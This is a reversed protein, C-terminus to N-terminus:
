VPNTVEQQHTSLVWNAFSLLQEANASAKMQNALHSIVMVNGKVYGKSNDIRDLAPSNPRGGSKGKFEDLKLGLIPCFEPVVIDELDINFELGNIKSRNKARALMKYETSSAKVRNSNCENCLTVTKSTKKFIKGCNTCERELEGVLFGERNRQMQVGIHNQLRILKCYM